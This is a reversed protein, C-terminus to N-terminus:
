AEMLEKMVQEIEQNFNPETWSTVAKLEGYKEILHQLIEYGIFYALRTYDHKKGGNISFWENFIERPSQKDRDNIFSRILEQKNALAFELWEEGQDDYSFYVSEEAEAVQKSFHTACGEQLLWIYPNEWNLSPWDMGERDSLLNHLAHGFEHAIIVKLHETNPSLKELCFTIEPIYQRHTFANSGYCGVIVHVDKTFQVQYKKEYAESVEQILSEIKGSSEKM